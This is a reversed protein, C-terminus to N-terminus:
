ELYLCDKITNINDINIWGNKEGNNGPNSVYVKKGDSAVDVITMWHETDTFNSPSEVHIIAIRGKKLHEIIHNKSISGYSCKIGKKQISQQVSFNLQNNYLVTGPDDMYGYGSLAIAVATISCGWDSITGSAYSINHYSGMFQKYEKYKKGTSSTFVQTYGDGNEPYPIGGAPRTKGKFENYYKKAHEIREAISENAYKERPGEYNALFARTLYDIDIDTNGTEKYNEWATSNYYTGFYPRGINSKSVYEIAKGNGTLYTVLFEVQTDEDKWSTNRSNAYDKLYKNNGEPGRNINTWQCLGIGGNNENYGLEVQECNFYSEHQINGMAAAIQLDSFGVDKLAWWVKEQISGGTLGSVTSFKNPDYEFFSIEKVGYDKGTAKFMLYKTREIMGETKENKDLMEYFWDDTIKLEDLAKKSKVLYTVFNEEKSDKDTKEVIEKEKVEYIREKRYKNQGVKYDNCIVENYTYITKASYKEYKNSKRFREYAVACWGIDSSEEREDIQKIEEQRDTVQPEPFNNIGTEIERKEYKLTYDGYWLKANTLAIVQKLTKIHEQTRNEKVEKETYTEEKPVTYTVSKGGDNNNAEFVASRTGRKQQTYQEVTYTSETTENEFVTFEIESKLVLEILNEIFEVDGTDVLLAWLYDFTLSYQNLESIVNMNMSVESFSTSTDGNELIKEEKQAVVYDGSDNITYCGMVQEDNSNILSKFIDYTKYTLTTKNGDNRVLKICGQLKSKDDNFKPYKTYIEAEILKKLFEKQQKEDKSLYDKLVNGNEKLEKMINDTVQDLTLIKGNSDKDQSIFAIYYGNQENGVVKINSLGETNQGLAHKSVVYPANGIIAM